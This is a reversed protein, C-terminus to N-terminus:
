RDRAADRQRVFADLHQAMTEGAFLETKMALAVIEVIDHDPRAVHLRAAWRLPNSRHRLGTCLARRAIVAIEQRM